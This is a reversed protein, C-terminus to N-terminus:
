KSTQFDHWSGTELLSNIKYANHLGYIAGGIVGTVFGGAAYQVELGYKFLFLVCGTLGVGLADVLMTKYYLEQKWEETILVPEGGSVLLTQGADLEYM